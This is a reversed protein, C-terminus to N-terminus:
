PEWYAALVRQRSALLFDYGLRKLASFSFFFFVSVLLVVTANRVNVRVKQLRRELGNRKMRKM